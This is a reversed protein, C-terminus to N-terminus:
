VRCFKLQKLSPLQLKEPWIYVREVANCKYQGCENIPSEPVIGSKILSTLRPSLDLDALDGICEDAIQSPEEIDVVDIEDNFTDGNLQNTKSIPTQLIKENDGLMDEEVSDRSNVMSIRQSTTVEEVAKARVTHKSHNGDSARLHFADPKMTNLLLIDTTSICKSDSEKYPFPPLSLILVNGLADVSVFDSGFHYSHAASNKEQFRPVSQEAEQTGLSGVHTQEHDDCNQPSM